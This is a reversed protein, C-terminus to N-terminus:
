LLLEAVTVGLHRALREAQGLKLREPHEELQLYTPVSVGAAEAMAELTYRKADARREERLARLNSM